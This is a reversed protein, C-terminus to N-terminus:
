GPGGRAPASAPRGAPSPAPLPIVVGTNMRRALKERARILLKYFGGRSLGLVARAAPVADENLYYLHIALREDDPLTDMAEGLRALQESRDAPDGPTATPPRAAQALMAQEEHHRRRRGARRREACVRRAIAYLWGGLREPGDLRDLNRFARLFTEQVADEAEATCNRRCLSMVVGAHRDYLRAFAGADGQRAAAVDRADDTM